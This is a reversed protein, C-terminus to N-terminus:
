AGTKKLSSELQALASSVEGLWRRTFAALAKMEQVNGRAIANRIPVGYPEVTGKKVKAVTTRLAKKGKSSPTRRTQPSRKRTPM